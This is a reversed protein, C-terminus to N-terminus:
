GEGAGGAHTGPSAGGLLLEAEDGGRAGGGGGAPRPGVVSLAPPGGGALRPWVASSHITALNNLHRLM